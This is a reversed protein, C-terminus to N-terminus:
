PDPVGVVAVTRAAALIQRVEGSTANTVPMECANSM